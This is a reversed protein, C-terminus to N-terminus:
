LGQQGVENGDSQLQQECQKFGSEKMKIAAGETEFGRKRM